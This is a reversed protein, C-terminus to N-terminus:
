KFYDGSYVAKDDIWVDYDPKKLQLHHYLCGWSDLQARTHESWDVGSRSGRATWYTITHGAHYLENIRDIREPYPTSNLYDGDVTHCITGDIDVIYKM